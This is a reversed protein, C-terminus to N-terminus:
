DFINPWEYKVFWDKDNLEDTEDIIARIRGAWVKVLENLDGVIRERISEPYLGLVFAIRIFERTPEDLDSADQVLMKLRNYFEQRNM